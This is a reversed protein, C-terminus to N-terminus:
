KNSINCFPMNEPNTSEGPTGSWGGVGDSVGLADARRFYADEGVQVVFDDQQVADTAQDRRKAFGSAGHSLLYSPKPKTEAFFDYLPLTKTYSPIPQPVAYYHRKPVTAASLPFHPSTRLLRRAVIGIMVPAMIYPISSFAISPIILRVFIKLQKKGFIGMGKGSIENIM